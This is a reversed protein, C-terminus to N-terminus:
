PDGDVLAALGRLAVARLPGEARGAAGTNRRAASLGAFARAGSYTGSRAVEAPGEVRGHWTDLLLECRSTARGLSRADGRHLLPRLPAVRDVVGGHGARAGAGSGGHGAAARTDSTHGRAQAASAGVGRLDRLRSQGRAVGDARHRHTYPPDSRLDRRLNR